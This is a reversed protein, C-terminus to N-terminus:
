HEEVLRLQWLERASRHLIPALALEGTKGIAEKLYRVEALKEDIEPDRPVPLGNERLMLIGKARLSLETELRLLCLMDALVPGHFRDRISQLYRGPRSEVFDGSRMAKLLDADLDFGSGLWSRLFRESQAFVAVLLLPLVVIIVLASTVPSVFFHNFFSHVAFAAALGPLSLWLGESERRDFLARTIMGFIATTGSHLVATGFGRVIWLGISSNPLAWFYYLNEVLAFGTGIAFGFIAADVLFGVRRARLLVLMPIAKLLEEIAPAAYRTLSRHSIVAATLLSGNIAYALTAVVAGVAILGVITRPRVLKYSDLYVLGLLFCSVPLFGLVIRTALALEPTM